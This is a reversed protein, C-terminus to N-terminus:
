CAAMARSSAPSWWWAPPRLSSRSAARPALTSPSPIVIRQGLRLPVRDSALKNASVLAVVSVGYRRALSYLTDGRAITHVRDNAPDAPVSGAGVLLAIGLGAAVLARTAM